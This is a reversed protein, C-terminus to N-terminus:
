RRSLCSEKSSGNGHSSDLILLDWYLCSLHILRVWGCYYTTSFLPNEAQENFRLNSLFSAIPRPTLGNQVSADVSAHAALHRKGARFTVQRQERTRFRKTTQYIYGGDTLINNSHLSHIFVKGLIGVIDVDVFRPINTYIHCAIFEM